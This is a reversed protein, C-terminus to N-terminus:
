CRTPREGKMKPLLMPQNIIWTKMRFVDDPMPGPVELAAAEDNLKNVYGNNDLMGENEPDENQDVPQGIDKPNNLKDNIDDIEESPEWEFPLNEDKM